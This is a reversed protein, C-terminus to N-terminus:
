NEAGGRLDRGRWIPGVWRLRLRPFLSLSNTELERTLLTSISSQTWTFSHSSAIIRDSSCSKTQLILQFYGSFLGSKSACWVMVMSMCILFPPGRQDSKRARYVSLKEIISIFHLSKGPRHLCETGPAPRAWPVTCLTLIVPSIGPWLSPEDCTVREQYGWKQTGLGAPSFM